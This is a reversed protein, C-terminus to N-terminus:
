HTKPLDFSIDATNDWFMRQKVTPPCHSEAPVSISERSILCDYHCIKATQRREEQPTVFCYRTIATLRKMVPDMPCPKLEPEASVAFSPALSLILGVCLVMRM